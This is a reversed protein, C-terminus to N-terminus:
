RPASRELDTFRASRFLTQQNEIQAARGIDPRSKKQMVRFIPLWRIVTTIDRNRITSRACNEMLTLAEIEVM